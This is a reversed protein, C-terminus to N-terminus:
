PVLSPRQTYIGFERFWRSQASFPGSNINAGMEFTFTSGVDLPLVGPMFSQTITGVAVGDRWLRFTTSGTLLNRLEIVYTHYAGGWGAATRGGVDIGNTISYTGYGDTMDMYLDGAIHGPAQAQSGSGPDGIYTGFRGLKGLHELVVLFFKYSRGGCPAPLGHEFMPSEKSTFRIWLNQVGHPPDPIRPQVALTYEDGACAHGARSPWDYRMAKDAGNFGGAPDLTIGFGNIPSVAGIDRCNALTKVCDLNAQSFFTNGTANGTILQSTNTYSQFDDAYLVSTHDSLATFGQTTTAGSNITVTPDAGSVAANLPPHYRATYTGPAIGGISYTGGAVPGIAVRTNGSLIEVQGTTIGGTSIITGALTGPAVLIFNNSTANLAGSQFTLTYAGASGSISLNTFTAVGSVANVSTTGGLTAGGPQTGIAATVASTFSTVTNGAIDTIRLVPQTPIAFGSSANAPQQTLLMQTPSGVNVTVSSSAVSLSPSVVSFTLVTSSAGNAPNRDLRLNTFTAVGNVANVPTTGTL